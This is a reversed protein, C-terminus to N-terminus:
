KYNDLFKTQFDEWIEPGFDSLVGEKLVGGDQLVVHAFEVSDPKLTVAFFDKIRSFETGIWRKYKDAIDLFQIEKFWNAPEIEYVWGEAYPSSNLYASNKILAENQKKIIGSVPAYINLQKGSQIISFLLDGKKIKEGPNKMEIRTVLGTVRQLFDDIGITVTGDKEMFAWTHTKDFYLGQPVIVSNEDFGPSDGNFAVAITLKKSRQHRVSINIILGLIILAVMIVIVLWTLSYSDKAPPVNVIVGNIKELQSQSENNVLDCYGNSQLFEQGDALVWKLFASEINNQPQVNSVAYINYYLSKPYKGIWVGRLFLNLDSYIDEMHDICGNGNKDIPLLRVNEILSRNDSGIINVVKCFGIAFPDKQIASIVEDSNGLTIGNIPTQTIQLFKAVRIKTSEDNIMYIHVPASQGGGLLTGWNQKEPNNFIQAFLEPSIGRKELDNLYPNGANMVSIIVDRGVVMKWNAEDNVVPQSIKSVFTLNNGTSLDANNNSLITVKIKVEPNLSSYESAWKSTLKYLDATSRISLSGQQLTSNESSVEKSSLCYCILLLLFMIVLSISNKM